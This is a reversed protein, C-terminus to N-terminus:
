KKYKRHHKSKANRCDECRCGKKYKNLTGCKSYKKRAIGSNCKLHSFAINENVDFFLKVPDESDLYPLKHDISFEDVSEIKNGCQFCNDLNCKKILEFLVMKRLRNCATGFPM